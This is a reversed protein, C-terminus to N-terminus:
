AGTQQRNNFYAFPSRGGAVSGTTRPAYTPTRYGYSQATQQPQQQQQQQQQQPQQSQQQPQQGRAAMSRAYAIIQQRTLGQGPQGSQGSQQQTPRSTNGSQLTGMGSPAAPRSQGPAQYAQPIAMTAAQNPIYPNAQGQQQWYSPPRADAALRALVAEMPEKEYQGTDANLRGKTAYELTKAALGANLSHNPDGFNIGYQPTTNAGPGVSSTQNVKGGLINAVNNATDQTAYHYRDLPVQGVVNGGVDVVGTSVDQWQPNFEEPAATTRQNGFLDTGGFLNAM